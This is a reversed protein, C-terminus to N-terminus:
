KWETSLNRVTLDLAESESYLRHALKERAFFEQLRRIYLSFPEIRKQRPIENAMSMFSHLVPHHLRLIDYLVNYGKNANSSQVAAAERSNSPFAEPRILLTYILHGMCSEKDRVSAPLFDWWAGYINDEEISEYPPCWVGWQLCSSCLLKYWHVFSDGRLTDLKPIVLKNFDKFKIEHFQFHSMYDQYFEPEQDVPNVFPQSRTPTRPSRGPSPGFPAPTAGDRRSYDGSGGVNRDYSYDVDRRPEFSVNGGTRGDYEYERPFGRRNPDAPPRSSDSVPRRDINVPNGRFNTDQASLPTRDDDPPTGRPNPGTGPVSGPEGRRAFDPDIGPLSQSGLTVSMGGPNNSDGASIPVTASGRVPLIPSSGPLESVQDLLEAESVNSPPGSRGPSRVSENVLLALPVSAPRPPRPLDLESLRFRILLPIRLSEIPIPRSLIISAILRELGSDRLSIVRVDLRTQFIGFLAGTITDMMTADLWMTDELLGVITAQITERYNDLLSSTLFDYLDTLPIEASPSNELDLDILFCDHLQSFEEADGM